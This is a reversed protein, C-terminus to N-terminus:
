VLVREKAKEVWKLLTARLVEQRVPKTSYADM